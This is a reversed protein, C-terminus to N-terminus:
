RGSLPQSLAMSRAIRLAVFTDAIGAPSKFTSVRSSIAASTDNRSAPSLRGGVSRCMGWRAVGYRLFLDVVNYSDDHQFVIVTRGTPSVAVFDPHAVPFVRGDVMHITFARFPQEAYRRGNLAATSNPRGYPSTM